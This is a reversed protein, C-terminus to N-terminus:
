VQISTIAAPIKTYAIILTFDYPPMTTLHNAGGPLGSNAHEGRTQTPEGAEEWLGFVHLM